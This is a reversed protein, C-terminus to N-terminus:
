PLCLQLISCANKNKFSFLFLAHLVYIICYIFMQCRLLRIVTCVFFESLALVDYLIDKTVLPHM